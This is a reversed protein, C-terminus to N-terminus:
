ILNDFLKTSISSNENEILKNEKFWREPLNNRREERGFWANM